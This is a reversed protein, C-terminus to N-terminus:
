GLRSSVLILDAHHLDLGDRAGRSMYHAECIGVLLDFIQELLM